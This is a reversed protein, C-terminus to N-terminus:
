FPPCTYLNLWGSGSFPFRSSSTLRSSRIRRDQPIVLLDIHSGVNRYLRNIVVAVRNEAVGNREDHAYANFLDHFSGKDKVLQRWRIRVGKEIRRFIVSVAFIRLKWPIQPVLNFANAVLCDPYQWGVILIVPIERDVVLVRLRPRFGCIRYRAARHEPLIHRYRGIRLIQCSPGPYNM